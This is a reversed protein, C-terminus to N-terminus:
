RSGGQAEAGRLKQSVERIKHHALITTTADDHDHGAIKELDGALDRLEQAATLLDAKGRTRIEVRSFGPVTKPTM